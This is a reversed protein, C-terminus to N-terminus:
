WSGGGGGGFGGGAGGGSFGSGGAGASSPPAFATSAAHTDLTHIANAFYLTNWTTMGSAYSPPPVDIGAFQKAWAEEVGFAIAFSLFEHFTEPKVQPANHFKLRDKETVSLFWKFGEVEELAVAGEKTKTPMFWGFVAVILGSVVLAAIGLAGFGFFPVLWFGIAALAVAGVMYAARVTNPNTGFLGKGRLSSFAQEKAKAIGKYLKGKLDAIEVRDKGDFM